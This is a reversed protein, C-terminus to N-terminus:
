SKIQNLFNGQPAIISKIDVPEENQQKCKLYRELRKRKEQQELQWVLYEDLKRQQTSQVPVTKSRRVTNEIHFLIFNFTLMSIMLNM